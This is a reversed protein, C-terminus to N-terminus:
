YESSHYRRLTLKAWAIEDDAEDPLSYAFDFVGSDPSSIHGYTRMKTIAYIKDELIVEKIYM